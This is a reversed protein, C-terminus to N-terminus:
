QKKIRGSARESAEKALYKPKNFDKLRRRYSDKKTRITEVYSSGRYNRSDLSLEKPRNIRCTKPTIGNRKLERSVSSPYRSLSTAIRVIGEGNKLRNEIVVREELSIHTYKSHSM